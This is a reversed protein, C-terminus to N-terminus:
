RRVCLGAFLGNTIDVTLPLAEGAEAELTSAIGKVADSEFEFIAAKARAGRAPPRGEASAAGTVIV